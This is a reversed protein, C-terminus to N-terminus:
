LFKYIVFNLKYFMQIPTDSPHFAMISFALFLKVVNIDKTLIYDFQVFMGCKEVATLTVDKYKKNKYFIKNVYFFYTYIISFFYNRM